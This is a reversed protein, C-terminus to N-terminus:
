EISWVKIKNETCFTTTPQDMKLDNSVLLVSTPKVLKRDFLSHPLRVAIPKTSSQSVPKSFSVQLRVMDPCGPKEFLKSDVCYARLAEIKDRIDYKDLVIMKMTRKRAKEMKSSHSNDVIDKVKAVTRKKKTKSAAGPTKDDSYFLKRKRRNELIEMKKRHIREKTISDIEKM